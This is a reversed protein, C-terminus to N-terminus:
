IEKWDVTPDDEPENKGAMCDGCITGKLAYTASEVLRWGKEYLKEALETKAKYIGYEENAGIEVEEEHSGHDCELRIQASMEICNRLDLLQDAKM